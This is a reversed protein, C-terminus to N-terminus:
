GTGVYSGQNNRDLSKHGGHRPARQPYVCRTCCILAFLVVRAVFYLAVDHTSRVQHSPRRPLRLVVYGALSGVRVSHPPAYLFKRQSSELDLKACVDRSLQGTTFCVGRPKLGCIVVVRFFSPLPLPPSPQMNSMYAVCLQEEAHGHFTSLARSKNSQLVHVRRWLPSVSKLTSFLKGQLTIRPHVLKM